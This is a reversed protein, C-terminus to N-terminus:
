WFVNYAGARSDATLRFSEASPVWDRSCEGMEILCTMHFASGGLRGTFQTGSIITSPFSKNEEVAM